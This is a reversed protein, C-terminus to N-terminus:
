IVTTLLFGCPAALVVAADAHSAQVVYSGRGGRGHEFWQESKTPVQLTVGFSASRRSPRDAVRVVGFSNNADWMRTYVAAAGENSVNQRAMGVYLEDLEFLAAIAQRTVVAPAGGTYKVQDLILPNTKLTNYVNVGCFGAWKGPGNGTWCAAKAALVNAIPQGGAPTNWRVGAALAATNAGYTAGATMLAAIRQEQGFALGDLVNLLPDILELALQDGLEQTWADLHEKFARRQLAAALRTVSESVENVTGDTGITDAPYSVGSEQPRAWYEVALKNVPVIPMLRTGIYDDNAYALSLDSLIQTTGVMGPTAQLRALKDSAAKILEPKERAVQMVAAFKREFAAGATSRQDYEIYHRSM